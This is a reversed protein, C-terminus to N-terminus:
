ESDNNKRKKWNEPNRKDDKFGESRKKDSYSRPKTKYSSSERDSRDSSFNRPKGSFRSPRKDSSRNDDRNSDRSKFSRKDDGDRSKWGDDSKPALKKMFAHYIIEGGSNSVACNILLFGKNMYENVEDEFEENNGSELLKFVGM